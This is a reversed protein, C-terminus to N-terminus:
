KKPIIPKAFTFASKLNIFGDGYGPYNNEKLFSDWNAMSYSSKPDAEGMLHKKLAEKKDTTAVSIALQDELFVASIAAEGKPDTTEFCDFKGCKSFEVKYGSKKEARKIMAMIKDKDTIGVRMVPMMDYGYLVSKAKLSFGSESIKDRSILDSYDEMWAVFFKGPGEDVDAILKKFDKSDAILAMIERSKQMHYNLAKEPIAEKNAMLYATDAPVHSLLSELDTGAKSGGFLNSLFGEAHVLSTSLVFALTVATLKKLHNKM